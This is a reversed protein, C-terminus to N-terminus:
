YSHELLGVRHPRPHSLARQATPVVVADGLSAESLRAHSLPCGSSQRFPCDREGEAHQAPDQVIKQYCEYQATMIKNRTVSLKRQEARSQEPEAPVPVQPILLFIDPSLM